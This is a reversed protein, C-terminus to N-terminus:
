AVDRRPQNAFTGRNAVATLLYSAVAFGVVVGVADAAWDGVSPTRTPVFAQHLEDFVGYLLGAAIAVFYPVGSGKWRPQRSVLTAWWLCAGLVSYLALHVVKDNVPFSPQLPAGRLESLLFLVGAWAAAPGWVVLWRPYRSPDRLM